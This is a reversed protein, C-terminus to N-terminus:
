KKKKKSVKKKSVTKKSVKKKSVKKKSVKKKKSVAPKPQGDKLKFMRMGTKKSKIAVYVREVGNKAKYKFSDLGKKRADISKKFYENLPRKKGGDM